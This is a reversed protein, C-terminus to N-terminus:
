RVYDDTVTTSGYTTIFKFQTTLPYDADDVFILVRGNVDATISSVPTTAAYTAYITAPTTTGALFVTVTAYPVIVGNADRIVRGIGGPITYRAM